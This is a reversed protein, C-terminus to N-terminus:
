IKIYLYKNNSPTHILRVVRNYGAIVFYFLTKKFQYHPYLLQSSTLLTPMLTKQSKNEVTLSCTIWM